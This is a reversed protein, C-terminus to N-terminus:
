LQILVGTATLETFHEVVRVPAAGGHVHIGAEINKGIGSSTLNASSVLLATRAGTVLDVLVAATARLPVRHSSPGTWVTQVQLADTRQRYGAAVGRLYAVLEVDSVEEALQADLVRHAAAGFGPTSSAAPVTLRPSGDALAAALDEVGGAGVEQMAAAVAVAVAKM